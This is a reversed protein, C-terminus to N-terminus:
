KTKNIKKFHIWKKITSGNKKTEVKQDHIWKKKSSGNKKIFGNLTINIQNFNKNPYTSLVVKFVAWFFIRVVSFM